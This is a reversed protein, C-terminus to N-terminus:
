PFDGISEFVGFAVRLSAYRDKDQSLKAPVEVLAFVDYFWM